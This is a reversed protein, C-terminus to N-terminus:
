DYGDVPLVIGPAIAFPRPLFDYTRRYVTTSQDGNQLEVGFQALSERTELHGAGNKIYTLSGTGSYKRVIHSARPRPSVRFLAFDKRMDDRQVFGVEPNFNDGIM